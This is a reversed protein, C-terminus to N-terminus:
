VVGRENLVETARNRYFIQQQAREDSDAQRRKSDM